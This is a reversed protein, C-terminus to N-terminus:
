EIEATSISTLFYSIVVAHLSDTMYPGSSRLQVCIHRNLLGSPSLLPIFRLVSQVQITNQQQTKNEQASIFIKYFLAM